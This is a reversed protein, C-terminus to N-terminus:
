QPAGGTKNKATLIRDKQAQVAEGDTSTTLTYATRGEDVIKLVYWTRKAFGGSFQDIRVETLRRYPVSRTVLRLGLWSDVITLRDDGVDTFRQRLSSVFVAIIGVAALVVMAWGWLNDRFNSIGSWTTRVFLFLIVAMPIGIVFVTVLRATTEADPIREM